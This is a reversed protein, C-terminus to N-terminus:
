APGGTRENPDDPDLSESNRAVRGGAAGSTARGAPGHTERLYAGLRDLGEDWFRDFHAVWESVEMLPRARLGYIRRRGEARAQVLGARRLVALHQSIASQTGRVFSLIASVSREGGALLDLIARRTPDAIAAFVSADASARM